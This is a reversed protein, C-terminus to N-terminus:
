LRRKVPPIDEEPFQPVDTEQVYVKPESAQREAERQAAVDQEAKLREQALDDLYHQAIDNMENLEALAVSSLAMYRPVVTAQKQVVDMLVAAREFDIDVHDPM